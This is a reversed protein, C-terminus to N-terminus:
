RLTQTLYTTFTNANGVKLCTITDFIKVTLILHANDIVM